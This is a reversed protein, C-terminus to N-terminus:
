AGCWVGRGLRVASPEGPGRGGGVGPKSRIKMRVQRAFLSALSPAYAAVARELEIPYRTPRLRLDPHFFLESYGATIETAGDRFPAWLATWERASRRHLEMHAAKGIRHFRKGLMRYIARHVPAPNLTHTEIMFEDRLVRDLQDFAAALVPPPLLDLTQVSWAGSVSRDKLPLSAVDCCLPVIPAGDGALRRLLRLNGLSMDVGLVTAGADAQRWHWGYGVGIDLIWSTAGFLARFDRAMGGMMTFAHHRAVDRLISDVDTELYRAAYTDRFHREEDQSTAGQTLLVPIGEVIGFDRRCIRCAIGSLGDRLALDGACAPCCLVEEVARRLLATAM